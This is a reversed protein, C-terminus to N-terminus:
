DPGIQSKWLFHLKREDGNPHQKSLWGWTCWLPLVSCLHHSWLDAATGSSFLLPQILSYLAARHYWIADLNYSCNWICCPNQQFPQLQNSIWCYSIQSNGKKTYTYSIIIAVLQKVSTRLYDLGSLTSSYATIKAKVTGGTASIHWAM